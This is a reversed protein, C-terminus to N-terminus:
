ASSPLGTFATRTPDSTRVDVACFGNAKSSEQGARRGRGFVQYLLRENANMPMRQGDVIGSAEKSGRGDIDAMGFAVDPDPEDAGEPPSSNDFTLHLEAKATREAWM